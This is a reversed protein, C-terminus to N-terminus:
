SSKRLSCISFLTFYQFFFEEKILHHYPSDTENINIRLYYLIIINFQKAEIMRNRPM